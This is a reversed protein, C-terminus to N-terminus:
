VQHFDMGQCQELSAKWGELFRNGSPFAQSSCHHFTLKDNKIQTISSLTKQVLLSVQISWNIILPTFLILRLNHKEASSKRSAQMIVAIQNNTYQIFSFYANKAKLYLRISFHQFCSCSLLGANPSILLSNSFIITFLRTLRIFLCSTNFACINCLHFYRIKIHTGQWIHISFCHIKCHM